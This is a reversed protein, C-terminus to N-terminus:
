NSIRQFKPPTLFSRSKMFGAYKLNLGKLTLGVFHDFVICEFLEDAFAPKASLPNFIELM